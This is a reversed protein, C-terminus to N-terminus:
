QSLGHLKRLHLGRAQVLDCQRGQRNLMLSDIDSAPRVWSSTATAIPHDGDFTMRISVPRVSGENRCDMWDKVPMVTSWVLLTSLVRNNDDMYVTIQDHSNHPQRLYRRCLITILSGAPGHGRM